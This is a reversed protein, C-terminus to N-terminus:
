KQRRAKTKKAKGGQDHRKIDGPDLEVWYVELVECDTLAEFQHRDGPKIATMEGPDLITEDNLGDKTTRVLLRGTLVYFLNFKFVHEHSSCQWGKKASIHHIEVNNQLFIPKTWGWVKGSKTGVM